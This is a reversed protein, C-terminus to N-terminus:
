SDSLLEQVHRGIAMSSTLGPSEMGVLHVLGKIGHNACSQISFDAFAPKNTMELQPHQLKPRIGSYDAVLADDPLAPFYKRIADYFGEMRVADPTLDIDDPHIQPDLWEVDPGFKTAQGSWDITAHVGLGGKADPVPYVLHQFPPKVGTLRFYSGKAFYQRPPEWSTANGPNHIERAVQDAWLGACNVVSDCTLEMGGATLQITGDSNICGGEVPTNLVLTADRAECDALLNVMLTHSDLVGTSPSWLAGYCGKIQPERAEVEATSILEVDLVGNELAQRKLRPLEDQSEQTAVILKGCRNYPIHRSKCYDYLLQKGEVCFKAKLSTSPYYLGAHIVESNRSSTESGIRSARELILVEKGAQALARAVALGIVGAGVVACEIKSLM